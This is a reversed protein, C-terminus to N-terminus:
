GQGILAELAAVQKPAAATLVEPGQPTVLVDDEIRIGAGRLGSPVAQDGEPFYLAPEVTLVFGAQLPRPRGGITYRGADHVDAGLWHSTKHPYYPRYLEKEIMEDTGTPVIMLARLGDCLTRLSATHIADIDSGVRAAAIGAENAALVIEYADRQVPTFKGSVPWARTIDGTFLDWEAGADVLLLEGARLQGRAATYHLVNARAGSGVITEYGPGSAGRRRFEHEILAEVEFEHLEPRTARMAAVHGAASIEIARRLSALAAEDKVIRDEALLARADRLCTPPDEGRRDGARLREIAALVARGEASWTGFPLYVDAVGDLLRPLQAELEPLTFAQDAGFRARADDPSTRRGHYLADREEHAPVFLTLGPERGPRLVMVCGPEVLGTLYYFNSDPRFRFHTDNSRTRQEGAFLILAADGIRASLRARRARCAALDPASPIVVALPYAPAAPPGESGAHALDHTGTRLPKRSRQLGDGRRAFV